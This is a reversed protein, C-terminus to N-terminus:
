GVTPPDAFVVQKCPSSSSTSTTNRSSHNYSRKLIKDSPSASNSRRRQELLEAPPPPPKMMSTNAAITTSTMASNTNNTTTTTTTECHTLSICVDGVRLQKCPLRYKALTHDPSSSSWGHGVVFFPHELTAEVAVQFFNLNKFEEFIRCQTYTGLYKQSENGLLLFEMM